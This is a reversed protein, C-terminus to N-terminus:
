GKAQTLYKPLNLKGQKWTFTQIYDGSKTNLKQKHFQAVIQGTTGRIHLLRHFSQCPFGFHESFVQGMVVKDAVFGVHGTRPEFGIM